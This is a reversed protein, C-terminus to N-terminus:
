SLCFYKSNHSFYEDYIKQINDITEKDCGVYEGNHYSGLKFGGELSDKAEDIWKKIENQSINHQLLYKFCDYRGHALCSYIIDCFPHYELHILFEGGVWYDFSYEQELPAGDKHVYKLLELNGNVIASGCSHKEYTYGKKIMLKVLELDGHLIADELFNNEFITRKVNEENNILKVVKDTMGARLLAIKNTKNDPLCDGVYNALNHLKNEICLKLLEADIKHTNLLALEKYLSYKYREFKIKRVNSSMPPYLVYNYIEFPIKTIMWFTLRNLLNELMEDNDIKLSDIIFRKPIHVEDDFNKTLEAERLFPLLENKNITVISM